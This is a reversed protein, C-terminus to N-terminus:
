CAVFKSAPQASRALPSDDSRRDKADEWARCARALAQSEARGLLVALRGRVGVVRETWAAAAAAERWRRLRGALERQEAAAARKEARARRAERRATGRWV